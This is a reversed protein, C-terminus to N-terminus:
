VGKNSNHNWIKYFPEPFSFKNTIVDFEKGLFYFWKDSFHITFRIFENGIVLTVNFLISDHWLNSSEIKMGIIKDCDDTTAYIQFEKKNYFSYRFVKRVLMGILNPIIKEITNGAWENNDETFDFSEISGDWPYFRYSDKIQFTNSGWDILFFKGLIQDIHRDNTRCIYTDELEYQMDYEEITFEEPFGKVLEDRLKKESLTYEKGSCTLYHGLLEVRQDKIIKGAINMIYGVPILTPRIFKTLIDSTNM